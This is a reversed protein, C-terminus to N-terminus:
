PAAEFFGLKGRCPHFPLPEARPICFGLPGFFWPSSSATVVDALVGKGVIGGRPFDQPKPLPLDPFAQRVWDYGARDFQQSAHILFEGRFKTNWSRNEYPKYGNAILWAWPQRISLAKM